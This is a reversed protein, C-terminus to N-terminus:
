ASKRCTILAEAPIYQRWEETEAIRRLLHFRRQMLGRIHPVLVRKGILKGAAGWKLSFRVTDKLLVQGGIETFEHDHQFFRFRGAIMTDQFFRCPEFATIESVHYNPFGLQWGKWCIRDGAVVLGDTRTAERSAVPHMGLEREVIALSTSLLFVREVPAAIHTHDKLVFM